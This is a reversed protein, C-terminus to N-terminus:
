GTFFQRTILLGSKHIINSTHFQPLKQKLDTALLRSATFQFTHLHAIASYQQVQTYNPTLTYSVALLDM